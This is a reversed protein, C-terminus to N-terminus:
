RITLGGPHAPSVTDRKVHLFENLEQWWSADPDWREPKNDVGWGGWVVIGDALEYAAELQYRWYSRELPRFKLAEEIPGYDAYRPWLFLFIPVGPRIRRSESIQLEISARWEEPQATFTYGIPFVADVLAFLTAVNTNDRQMSLYKDLDKKPNFREYGGTVPLAGFLGIKQDPALARYRSVVQSLKRISDAVEMGYRQSNNVGWAEIDIITYVSGIQRSQDAQDRLRRDTPMDAPSRKARIWEDFLHPEYAIHIPIMGSTRLDPKHTFLTADYIVFSKAGYCEHLSLGLAVCAGLAGLLLVRGPRFREAFSGM